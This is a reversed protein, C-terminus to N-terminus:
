LTWFKLSVFFKIRRFSTAFSLLRNMKNRSFLALVFVWYMCMFFPLFLSGRGFALRFMGYLFIIQCYNYLANIIMNLIKLLGQANKVSLRIAIERFVPLFLAFYPFFYIFSVVFCHSCLTASLRKHISWNNHGLNSFILSEESMKKKWTSVFKCSPFKSFQKAKVAKLLKSDILCSIAWTWHRVLYLKRLSAVM